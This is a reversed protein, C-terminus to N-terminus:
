VHFEYLQNHPQQLQYVTEGIQKQFHGASLSIMSIRKQWPIKLFAPCTHTVFKLLNLVVRPHFAFYFYFAFNIKQLLFIDSYFVSFSLAHRYRLGLHRFSASAVSRKIFAFRSWFILVDYPCPDNMEKDKKRKSKSLLLWQELYYIYFAKKLCVRMYPIALM